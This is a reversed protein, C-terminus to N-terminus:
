IVIETATMAPADGIVAGDQLYVSAGVSYGSSRVRVSGGGPLTVLATGDTYVVSVVGILLSSAPLLRRFQAWRNTTDEGITVTQSVDVGTKSLSVAIDVSNCIGHHAAGDIEFRLLNGIGVMAVAGGLPITASRVEPQRQQGALMRSGLLRAAAPDTILSHNQSSALRDGATGARVIRGVIGGTSGGQVYVANAQAAVPQRSTLSTIIADPIM